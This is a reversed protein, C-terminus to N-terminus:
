QKEQVYSVLMQGTKRKKTRIFMCGVRKTGV